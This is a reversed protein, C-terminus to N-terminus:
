KDKLARDTKFRLLVNAIVFFSTVLEPPVPLGFVQFITVVAGAVVNINITASKATLANLIGQNM